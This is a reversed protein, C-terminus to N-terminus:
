GEISLIQDGHDTTTKTAIVTIGRDELFRVFAIM